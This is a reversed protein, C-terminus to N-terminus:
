HSNRLTGTVETLALSILPIRVIEQVRLLYFMNVSSSFIRAM